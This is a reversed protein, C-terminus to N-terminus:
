SEVRIDRLKAETPTAIVRGQLKVPIAVPTSRLGTSITLVKVRSSYELQLKVLATQASLDLEEDELLLQVNQPDGDPDFWKQFRMANAFFLHGRAAYVKVKNGGRDTRLESTVHLRHSADWAFRIAALVVGVGVAYVLNNTVTVTTVTVAVLADWRDVKVPLHHKGWRCRARLESSLVASAIYPLSSWRFTHIVVVLMVGTLASVPVTNLLPYAGMVVGMVCLATTAPAIRGRGGSLGNIQSLAIM